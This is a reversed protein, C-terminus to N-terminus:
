TGEYYRRSIESIKKAFWFYGFHEFSPACKSLVFAQYSKDSADNELLSQAKELVCEIKESDAGLWQEYLHALNIYSVAEDLFGDKIKQMIAIASIFYKEAAQYDGVDQYCLAANNYYGAFRGDNESLQKSYVEYVKEYLKLAEESKNFAKLTTAANLIITAGSISDELELRALLEGSRKVSYMAKEENQLRRYLGLQENVVSLEGSLDEQSKAENEWYSLLRQAASLDNKSFCEDLKKIVTLVPIKQKKPEKYGCDACGFNSRQEERDMM